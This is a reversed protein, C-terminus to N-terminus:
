RGARGRRKSGSGARMEPTMDLALNDDHRGDLFQRSFTEALAAPDDAALAVASVLCGAALALSLFSGAFPRTMMDMNSYM